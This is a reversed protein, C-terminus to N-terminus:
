TAVRRSLSTQSRLSRAVASPQYGLEQMAARVRDRTKASVSDHDNLVRSVTKPSVDAREAVDHITAMGNGHGTAREREDSEVMTFTALALRRTVCAM